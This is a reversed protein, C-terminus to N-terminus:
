VDLETYGIPFGMLSEVFMPSLHGSAGRAAVTCALRKKHEYKALAERKGTDKWDRATPTPWTRPQQVQAALSQACKGSRDGMRKLFTEQKEGGTVDSARPTLWLSSGTVDTIPALPPLRYVIGNQM